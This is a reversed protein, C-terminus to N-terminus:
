LKEWSCASSLLNFPCSDSFPRLGLLLLFPKGLLPGLSMYAILKVESPAIEGPEVIEEVEVITTKAAKCMPVNFNAVTYRFFM